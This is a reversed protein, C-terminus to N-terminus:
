NLKLKQCNFGLIDNSFHVVASLEKQKGCHDTVITLGRTARLNGMPHVM